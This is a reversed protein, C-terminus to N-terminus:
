VVILITTGFHGFYWLMYLVTEINAWKYVSPKSSLIVETARQGVNAKRRNPAAAVSRHGHRHMNAWSWQCSPRTNWSTGHNKQAKKPTNRLNQKPVNANILKVSWWSSPWFLSSWLCASETYYKPLNYICVIGVQCSLDSTAWKIRLNDM